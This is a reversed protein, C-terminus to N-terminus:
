MTIGRTKLTNIQIDVNRIFIEYRNENITLKLVYYVFYSFVAVNTIVYYGDENPSFINICFVTNHMFLDVSDNSLTHLQGHLSQSKLYKGQWYISRYSVDPM